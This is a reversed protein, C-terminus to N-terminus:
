ILYPSSFLSISLEGGTFFRMPLIKWFRLLIVLYVTILELLRFHAYFLFVAIFVKLFYTPNALAGPM